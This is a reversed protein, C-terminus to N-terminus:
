KLRWERSIFEELGHTLDACSQATEGFIGSKVFISDEQAQEISKRIEQLIHATNQRRHVFAGAPAWFLGGIRVTDRYAFSLAILIELKDFLLTYLNGNPIIPKAYPRLKDHLWDSFPVKREEMSELLQAVEGQGHLNPFLCWPPLVDVAPPPTYEFNGSYIPTAFIQGLFHFRESRVAGLGLAYLLLTGPYAILESWVSHVIVKNKIVLHDLARQWVVYHDKEAWYGAVVAMELLTACAREYADVRATFSEGAIEPEASFEKSSITEVVQNVTEVVLDELQIRYRPESLYRKLKSVPDETSDSYQSSSGESIRVGENVARFRPEAASLAAEALFASRNQHRKKAEQDITHLVGEPVTINIRKAKTLFHHPEIDIGYCIWGKELRKIVEEPHSPKPLAQRKTAMKELQEAIAKKANALAEDFSGGATSCGPFDPIVVGYSTDGDQPLSIMSFYRM